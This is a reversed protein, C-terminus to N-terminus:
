RGVILYHPRSGYDRKDCSILLHASPQNRKMATMSDYNDIVKGKCIYDGEQPEYNNPMVGIPIVVKISNAETEGKSELGIGKVADYFVGSIIHKECGDAGEHFFTVTRNFM